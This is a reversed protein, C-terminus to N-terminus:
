SEVIRVQFTPTIKIKDLVTLWLCDEFCAAWDVGNPLPLVLADISDHSAANEVLNICRAVFDDFADFELFM